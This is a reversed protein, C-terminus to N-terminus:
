GLTRQGRVASVRGRPRRASLLQRVAGWSGDARDGGNDADDAAGPWTSRARRGQQALATAPACAGVRLNSGHLARLARPRSRAM